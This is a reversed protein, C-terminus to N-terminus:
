FGEARQLGAHNDARDSPRRGLFVGANLADHRLALLSPYALCRELAHRERMHVRTIWRQGAFLQLYVCFCIAADVEGFRIM